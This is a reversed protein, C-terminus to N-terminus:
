TASPTPWAACTPRWCRTTRPPPRSGAAAVLDRYLEAVQVDCEAEVLRRQEKLAERTAVAGDYRAFWSQDTCEEVPETFTKRDFLDPLRPFISTASERQIEQLERWLEDWASEFARADTQDRGLLSNVLRFTDEMTAVTSQYVSLPGPLAAPEVGLLYTFIRAEGTNRAVATSLAGAEFLLWESDLSQTTLCVLGADAQRLEDNVAAFWLSGKKIDSSLFVTIGQNGFHAELWKKLVQALRHSRGGSWSIFLRMDDGYIRM